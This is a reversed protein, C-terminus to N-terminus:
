TSVTATEIEDATCVEAAATPKTEPRSAQNAAPSTSSSAASLRRPTRSDLMPNAIGVYAKM